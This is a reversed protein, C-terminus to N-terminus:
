VLAPINDIPGKSVFKLSIEIPILVNENLFICKLIDDAFHPGNQRLRLSNIFSTSQVVWKNNGAPAPQSQKMIRVTLFTAHEFLIEDSKTIVLCGMIFIFLNLHNKLVISEKIQNIRENHSYYSIVVIKQMSADYLVQSPWLWQWHDYILLICAPSEEPGM